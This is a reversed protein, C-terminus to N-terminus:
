KKTQHLEATKETIMGKLDEKALMMDLIEAAKVPDALLSEKIKNMSEPDNMVKQVLQDKTAPTSWIKDMILKSMQPYAMLQQMAKERSCSAVVLLSVLGVFVLAFIVIKKM